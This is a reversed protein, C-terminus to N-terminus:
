RETFGFVRGSADILGEPPAPRSRGFDPPAARTIKRVRFDLNGGVYINSEADVAVGFPHNFQAPGDPGGTGDQDGPTGNGALTTVNGDPDINRIRNSDCDAVIINGSQDIALGSPLNFEASGAPGDVSGANGNGALTTVNGQPDIRRIRENQSDGVYVNGSLDVALGSPEHFQAAAGNGDAYGVTLSGALTSVRGSMDIVCIRQNGTDAVYLSGNPGIAIATPGDFPIGDGGMVPLTTVNQAADIRRVLSYYTDAVFIDGSPAVVLAVPSAFEAMGNPGGTGDLKGAAGNGAWTTVNDYLDIRRIRSAWADAVFANGSVDFGLGMPWGLEATGNRGGSGDQYAHTGNGAVTTVTVPRGGSSTGGPAGATSGGGTAVASIKAGSFYVSSVGCGFLLGVAGLTM